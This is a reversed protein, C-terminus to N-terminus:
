ISAIIESFGSPENGYLLSVSSTQVQNSPICDDKGALKSTPLNYLIVRNGTFDLLVILNKLYNEVSM